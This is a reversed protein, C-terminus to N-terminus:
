RVESPQSSGSSEDKKRKKSGDKKDNFMLLCSTVAGHLTSTSGIVELAEKRTLQPFFELLTNMKEELVTDDDDTVDNTSTRSVPDKSKSASSTKTTQEDDNTFEISLEEEYVVEQPRSKRLNRAAPKNEKESDPSKSVSALTNDSTTATKNDFSFRDVSFMSM